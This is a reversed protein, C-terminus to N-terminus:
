MHKEAKVTSKVKVSDYIKKHTDTFIITGIFVFLTGIWHTTTFPNQFYIISFVLSFFKRLTLVLTVVLSSCESTLTVVSSICIYQTLVNLFIYFVIKPLYVISLVHIVESELAIIGHEYISKSVLLFLPLPLLHIYYLVERPHKGYKQFLVEQYIGTRASLFLAFTLLCVGISWWFFDEQPTTPPGKPVTSKVEKASALTSLIIGITILIVSFYKIVSYSKKLLIVGLIMNMILSGSRFIIHLPVPVNFHFVYNNCVNTLAFSAVLASYDKLKIHPKVTGFKSTFAFGELAIFLFQLFTILHGAGPDEKIVFELFVVNSMCGVFVMFIAAAANM